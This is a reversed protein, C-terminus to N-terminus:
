PCISPHYRDLVVLFGFWNYFLLSLIQGYIPDGFDLTWWFICVGLDVLIDLIASDTTAVNEVFFFTFFIVLQLEAEGPLLAFPPLGRQVAKTILRGLLREDAGEGYLRLRTDKKVEQGADLAWHVSRGPTALCCIRCWQVLLIWFHSTM